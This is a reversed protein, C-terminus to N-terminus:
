KKRLKFTKVVDTKYILKLTDNDIEYNSGNFEINNIDFDGEYVIKDEYVKYKDSKPKRIINYKYIEIGNSLIFLYNNYIKTKIYKSNKIDKTIDNNTFDSVYIYEKQNDFNITKFELDIVNIIGKLKLKNNVNNGDVSLSDYTIESETEGIKGATIFGDDLKLTNNTSKLGVIKYNDPFFVPSIKNTIKNSLLYYNSISDKNLNVYQLNNNKSLDIYSLKNSNIDLYILNNLDKLNVSNLNLNDIKLYSLINSNIKISNKNTKISLQQLNPYNDINFDDSYISLNVLKDLVSNTYVNSKSYLTMLNKNNSVDINLDGKSIILTNLNILKSLIDNDISNTYLVNLKNTNTIKDLSTITSTTYLEKLSVKNKYELPLDGIYGVLNPFNSFDKVSSELYKINKNLINDLAKDGVYTHLFDLNELGNPLVSNVNLIYRIKSSLKLSSIDNNINTNVLELSFLKNIKDLSVNNVACDYLSLNNLLVLDNINGTIKTNLLKLSTLKDKFKLEDININSINLFVDSLNDLNNLLKYDYNADTILKISKLSKVNFLENIYVDDIKGYSIIKGDKLKAQNIEINELGELKDLGIINKLSYANTLSISKLNINNSFDISSTVYSNLDFKISQLNVLREIGEIDKINYNDENYKYKSFPDQVNILYNKKYNFYNDYNSFIYSDFSITSNDSINQSTCDLDNISLLEEDSLTDTMKYNKNNQKNYTNLICAYFHNDWLYGNKDKIIDEKKM